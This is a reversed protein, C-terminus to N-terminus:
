PLEYVEVLAAGTSNNTGRVQASYLGPPLTMILAADKSGSQLAFAGSVTEAQAIDAATTAATAPEQAEWNDNHALVVGHADFLTLTPDAVVGGVGFATLGPGVARILV